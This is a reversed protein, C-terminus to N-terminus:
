SFGNERKCAECAAKQEESMPESGPIRVCAKCIGGLLKGTEKKTLRRVGEIRLIEKLM